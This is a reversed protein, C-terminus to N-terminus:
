HIGACPRLARYSLSNKAYLMRQQKNHTRYAHNYFPWFIPLHTQYTHFATLTLEMM